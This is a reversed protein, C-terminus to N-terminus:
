TNSIAADVDSRLGAHLAAIIRGARHCRVVAESRRLSALLQARREM